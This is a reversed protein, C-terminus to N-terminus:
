ATRPRRPVFAGVLEPLRLRRRFLVLLAAHVALGALVLVTRTSLSAGLMWAVAAPGGITTVALLASTLVRRDVVPAALSRRLQAAPLANGVVIAAAWAVAAGTAGWRPVLLLNLALNAGLAALNNVLSAVSRGTMLLVIDVPGAGTGVLMALALVVLAVVGGDYGPGFVAMVHEPVAVAVLYVPWAITVSWLTATRLVLVAAEPREQGLLRAVQPGVMQQIGRIGLQGLAVIRSAATYLAAAAPGALAAVIPIDARRVATQAVQTVSRPAAFRWVESATARVLSPSPRSGDRWGHTRGLAVLARAALAASLVYPAAWAAVVPVISDSAQVAVLALVPQLGQRVLGDVLVTPRVSGFGRTAALLLDSAAAVPVLVALLVTAPGVGDGGLLSTTLRPGHVALVIAVATALVLVPVLVVPLVVAAARPGRDALRLALFRVLAVDSGLEVVALTVLFLSTLAFVSGVQEAGLGRAVVVVFALGALGSVVAAALGGIGGRALRRLRPDDEAV